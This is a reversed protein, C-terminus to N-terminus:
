MAMFITHVVPDLQSSIWTIEWNWIEKLSESSLHQPTIVVTVGRWVEETPSM